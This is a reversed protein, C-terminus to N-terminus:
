HRFVAISATQIIGNPDDDPARMPYVHFLIAKADDIKKAQM